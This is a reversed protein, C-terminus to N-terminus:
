LVANIGRRSRCPKEQHRDVFSEISPQVEEPNRRKGDESSARDMTDLKWVTGGM